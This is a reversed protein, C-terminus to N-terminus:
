TAAAEPQMGPPLPGFGTHSRKQLRNLRYRELPLSLTHYVMVAARRLHHKRFRQPHRPLHTLEAWYKRARFEKHLVIHLQRYFETTYPGKYLMALDNSDQWNQKVGLQGAVREHFKTGP